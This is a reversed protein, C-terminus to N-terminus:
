RHRRPQPPRSLIHRHLRSGDHSDRKEPTEAACSHHARGHNATQHKLRRPRLRNFRCIGGITQVNSRGMEAALPNKGIALEVATQDDLDAAAIGGQGDGQGLRGVRQHM